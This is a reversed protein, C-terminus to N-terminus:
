YRSRTQTRVKAWLTLVVGLSVVQLVNHQLDPTPRGDIVPMLKTTEAYGHQFYWAFNEHLFTTGFLYPLLWQRIQLLLWVMSWIWGAYIWRSKELRLGLLLMGFPIVAMLTSPLQSGAAALNNFPALDVYNTIIFYILLLALAISAALSWTQQM